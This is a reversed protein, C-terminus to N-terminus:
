WLVGDVAAVPPPADAGIAQLMDIEVNRAISQMPVDHVTGDLPAELDRGITDLALFMFGVLTSAIPTLYGLDNVLGVPLLVCYVRTFILPFHNYQAPLPTGKIRDLGGQADMAARLTRDIAVRATIDPVAAPLERVIALQIAFPVNKARRVEAEIAAPLYASLGEPAIRLLHTRLSLVYAIQMRVLRERSAPDATVTALVRTFSRSNNGIAGWFGRAEWWRAYAANNRLTVALAIASGLLPLPLDSIGVFRWGMHVYLITIATDYALLAGLLPWMRKALRWTVGTRVIM